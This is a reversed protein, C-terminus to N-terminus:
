KNNTAHQRDWSEERFRSAIELALPRQSETLVKEAELYANTDNDDIREEASKPANVSPPPSRGEGTSHGMGGRSRGGMGGRPARSVPQSTQKQNAEQRIAANARELQDDLNRLRRVQEDSLELERRHELVAAISSRPLPPQSAPPTAKPPSTACALPLLAVSIVIGFPTRVM